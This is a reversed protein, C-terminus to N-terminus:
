PPSPPGGTQPAAPADGKEKATTKEPTKIKVDYRTMLERFLRDALEQRKRARYDGEVQPRIESLSATGGPSKSEVLVLFRKQGAVHPRRTWDGQDLQFLPGGDGLEPHPRGRVVTERPPEQEGGLRERAIKLFDEPSHIRDLLPAADEGDKLPLAAVQLSEPLRYQEENLKLFAELDVDTPQIKGLERQQFRQALLDEELYRRADLYEPDQDLKL